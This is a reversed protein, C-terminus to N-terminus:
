PSVSQVIPTLFPELVAYDANWFGASQAHWGRDGARVVVLDLSPVVIIFTEHLGWAWYADTPVGSMQGTANTWWLVGYNTTAGPFNVPDAITATAIQAQPQRVQEVVSNSILPQNDWVGRRLMLLGVRAMANVNAEIGSALERRPVPVGNVSLTQTRYQNTRWVLDTAGIGLTTFIRSFLLEHLDQAYTHTLLDALWNLAQDSYAWTTGPEYLLQLTGPQDSKSLGSTHTSLQLVTIGALSGGPVPTTDVVPDTGLQALKHSVVDEFSVSGEDLALLLALGGMSKTTSKMEYRVTPDGWSYVLRGRRIIYGAENGTQGASLSYDRAEDLRTVDMQEEAPTATVWGSVGPATPSPYTHPNPQVTVQLTSTGTLAGDSAKFSLVYDGPGGVFRATTAASSADAFTVGPTGGPGQPGSVLEWSYTLSNGSPLGDDTASGSLSASDTPLTITIAQGANAVPAVNTPTVPASPPPTGSGGGGGGCAALLASAVVIPYGSCHTRARTLAHKHPFRTM